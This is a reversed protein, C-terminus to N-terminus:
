KKYRITEQIYVISALGEEVGEQMKTSNKGFVASKPSAATTSGSATKVFRRGLKPGAREKGKEKGKEKEEEM